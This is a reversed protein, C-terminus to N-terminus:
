SIPKYSQRKGVILYGYPLKNALFAILISLTLSTIFVGPVYLVLNIKIDIKEIFKIIFMHLLYINFSYNSITYVIDPIRKIKSSFYFILLIVATTYILLDPRKSWVKDFLGYHQSSLLLIVSLAVISFLKISNSQLKNVLKKYRTGAYYGLTFYFIWAVFPMYSLKSWVANFVFNDSDPNVLNFFSLYLVNVIFSIVTTKVPPLTKLRNAFLWHLIYFQFIIIIFYGFYDTLFVNSLSKILWTKLTFTEVSIAAYITGISAYPILLFKFRKSFFGKPLENPYSISLLFESLFIFTPTAFMLLLTSTSILNQDILSGDDVHKISSTLSHILVVSVCAIARIVFIENVILRKKM